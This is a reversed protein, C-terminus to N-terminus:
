GWQDADASDDYFVGDLVGTDEQDFAGVRRQLRLPRDGSAHEFNAFQDAIGSDAFGAFFGSENDLGSVQEADVVADQAVRLLADLIM